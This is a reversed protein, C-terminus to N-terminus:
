CAPAQLWSRDLESVSTCGLLSMTRAMDTRFLELIRDVGAEGAGALAYLYPRGVLVARAGLAVAKVIDSGRRVGGDVLVEVRGGAASVVEPLVRLSAPAGDLQRGGHNSVIVADAGADAARSADDGSLVGKVLLPGTWAGRIWAIDDWTFPSALSKAAVQSPAATSSSGSEAPTPTDGEPPKTWPAAGGPAPTRALTQLSTRLMRLAWVPKVAVQPGLLAVSRPSLQMSSMHNRLDRERKGLEPTDVTVVLGEFGSSAAQTMLEQSRDRDAAYLQFWRPGPRGALAEPPVGAVTSLVSLTGARRAARDVSSAGGPHMLEVLGCPALLLPLSITTGVVVTDLRPQHTTIAMRPKFVVERFALENEAMTIEDEAGGDIYDFVVRPLARRALHRADAVNRIGAAQGM